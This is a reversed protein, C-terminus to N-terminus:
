TNKGNTARRVVNSMLIFRDNISEIMIIRYSTSMMIIKFNFIRSIFCLNTRAAIQTMDSLYSDINIM